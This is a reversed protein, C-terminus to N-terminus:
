RVERRDSKPRPTLLKSSTADEQRETRSGTHYGVGGHETLMGVVVVRADADAALDERVLRREPCHVGERTLSQVALAGPPAM